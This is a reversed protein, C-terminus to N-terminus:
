RKRNNYPAVSVVPESGAGILDGDFEVTVSTREGPRLILYNDSYVAPLVREGTAPDHLQVHAGFAVAKSSAPNSVSIDMVTKGGVDRRKAAVKLAVPPLDNLATFDTRDLGRWYTGRDIVRGAADKLTLRIFHVDSLGARHETGGYVKMEYLSYGYGTARKVGELRVYRAREDDFFVDQRGSKGRGDAVVTRWERADDSVQVRFERAFANEWNLGLGYVNTEAGLDVYVWEDDTYDSSWRSTVDGDAIDGPKGHSTSSAVAPRGAAVDRAGRLFPITLARVNTNSHSDLTGSVAFDPIARGDSNFVEVSATLGRMNESTTNTVHVDNTVPNWLIHVPVCAQKCGWYAGTLDYYYDYTQWVMSPYASQSMWTMIGTADDWMHALWGEYMARNSEMNLFQAKLCFEEANAPAGYRETIYETYREPAANFANQGFYHTNWMGDIPWHHEAPMFKVFSEFNPVVATGIETRLGWGPTGGLSAPYPKFYYRPDYAGWMGSGSLNGTQSNEQYHRDGGDFVRVNERLYVNLPPEPWGENNGCWVAVCPNNRRRKIKEIANANFASIDSPSVPNSNLWFDDWVMM